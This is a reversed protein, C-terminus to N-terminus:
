SRLPNRCMKKCMSKRFDRTLTYSSNELKQGSFGSFGPGHFIKKGTLLPSGTEPALEQKKPSLSRAGTEVLLVNNAGAGGVPSRERGRFDALANKNLARPGTSGLTSPPCLRSESKEAGFLSLGLLLKQARVLRACSEPLTRPQPNGM